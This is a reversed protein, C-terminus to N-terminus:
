CWVIYRRHYVRMSSRPTCLKQLSSNTLCVLYLSFRVKCVRAEKVKNDTAQLDQPEEGLAALLEPDDLDLDLMGYEDQSEQNDAMSRLRPRSPEPMAAARADLFAQVLRRIEVGTKAGNSLNIASFIKTVWAELVYKSLAM